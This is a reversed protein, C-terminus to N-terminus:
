NKLLHGKLARGELLGRWEKFYAGFGLGKFLTGWGFRGLNKLIPEKGGERIGIWYTEWFAFLPGLPEL